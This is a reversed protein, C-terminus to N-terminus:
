QRHAHRAIDGNEAHRAAAGLRAHFSRGAVLCVDGVLEWTSDALAHSKSWWVLGILVVSYPALHPTSGILQSCTFTLLCVEVSM